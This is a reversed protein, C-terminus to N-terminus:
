DDKRGGLLQLVLGHITLKLAEDFYEGIENKHLLLFFVGRLAASYVKPDKDQASPIRTILKEIMSDDQSFHETIRDQPLKRILIELEGSFFITSLGTQEVKKCANFLVTTLDNVTIENGLKLISQLFENQIEDHWKMIVEFLLLEKSPYFLYFTGKPIKVRKVLEDVTTRKIGYTALCEAAHFRLDAIILEKEKETYSKPM